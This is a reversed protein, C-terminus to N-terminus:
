MGNDLSYIVKKAEDISNITFFDKKVASIGRMGKFIWSLYKRFEKVAKQEGKFFVMFKLYCFAFRKLWETDPKPGPEHGMLGLIIDAFVWMNGKSSRGIMIADCDTYQLVEGAKNADNIDGSAIVPIGLEQKVKRIHLYDAQGRFGQKVTRGHIAIASAGSDQCRTAFEIVNISSSDWGLRIKVTVPIKVASVVAKIIDAAKGPEKLLWGGSKAKLIKAVPCGMNIDIIDATSELKKLM